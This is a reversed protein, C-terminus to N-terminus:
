FQFRVAVLAAKPAPQEFVLRLRHNHAAAITQVVTIGANAAIAKWYHGRRWLGFHAVLPVGGALAAKRTYSVKGDTRRLIPNAEEFGLFEQNYHTTALDLAASGFAAGISLAYLGRQLRSPADTYAQRTPPEVGPGNSFRGGNRGVPSGTPVGAAVHRAPRSPEPGPTSTLVVYPHAPTQAAAAPALALAIALVTRM